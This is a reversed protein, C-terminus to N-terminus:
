VVGFSKVGHCHDRRTMEDSGGDFGSRNVDWVGGEWSM